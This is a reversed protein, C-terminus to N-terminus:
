PLIEPKPRYPEQRQSEPQERPISGCLFCHPLMRQRDGIAGPCRCDFAVFVMAFDKEEANGIIHGIREIQTNEIGICAAFMVKDRALGIGLGSKPQEGTRHGGSTRPRPCGFAPDQGVATKGGLRRAVIAPNRQFRDIGLVAVPNGAPPHEQKDDIAQRAVVGIQIGDRQTQPVAAIQFGFPQLNQGFLRGHAYGVLTRHGFQLEGHGGIGVPQRDAIEIRGVGLNRERGSEAGPREGCRPLPIPTFGRDGDLRLFAADGGCDQKGTAVLHGVVGGKGHDIGGAARHRDGQRYPRPAGVLPRQRCGVDFRQGIAMGDGEIGRRRDIGIAIREAIGPVEAVTGGAGTAGQDVAIGFGSAVSPFQADVVIGPCDVVAGDPRERYEQFPRWGGNRAFVANGGGAFRQSEVAGGGPGAIPRDRPHAPIELVTRFGLAGADAVGKRSGAAIGHRQRGLVIGGRGTIGAQAPQGDPDVIRGHRFGAGIGTHRHSLRHSEITAAAIIDITADGVIAPVEAITDADFPRHRLMSEVPRAGIDGGQGHPVIGPDGVADAAISQPNHDIIRRHRLGTGVPM